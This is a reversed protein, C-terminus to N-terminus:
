RHWHRANGYSAVDYMAAMGKASRSGAACGAAGSALAGVGLLRLFERRDM